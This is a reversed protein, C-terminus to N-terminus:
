FLDPLQVSLILNQTLLYVAHLIALKKMKLAEFALLGGDLLHRLELAGYLM